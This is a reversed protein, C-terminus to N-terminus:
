ESVVRGQPEGNDLGRADVIVGVGVLEAVVQSAVVVPIVRSDVVLVRVSETVTVPYVRSYVYWCLTEVISLALPPQPPPPLLLAPCDPPPTTALPKTQPSGERHVEKELILCTLHPGNYLITAQGREDEDTLTLTCTKM